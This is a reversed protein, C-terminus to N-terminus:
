HDHWSPAHAWLKQESYIRQEAEKWVDTVSFLYILESPVCFGIQGSMKGILPTEYNKTVDSGHWVHLSISDAGLRGGTGASQQEGVFAGSFQCTGELRMCKCSKQLERNTLVWRQLQRDPPSTLPCWGCSLSSLDTRWGSFSLLFWLIWASQVTNLYLSDPHRQKWWCPMFQLNLSTCLIQRSYFRGFLLM